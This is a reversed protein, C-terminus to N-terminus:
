LRYPVRVGPEDAAFDKTNRTVLIRDHVQASAWVIADPLKIKHSKRIEVSRSAVLADIPLSQFGALFGRTANDTEPTTGVLVEMWTIVSIAKDDKGIYRDLETKAAPIGNLYDILINTDFLAKVM